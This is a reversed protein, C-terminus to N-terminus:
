EKGGKPCLFKEIKKREVLYALRDSTERLKNLSDFVSLLLSDIDETKEKARLDKGANHLTGWSCPQKTQTMIRREKVYFNNRQLTSKKISM